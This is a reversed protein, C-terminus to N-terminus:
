VNKEFKDTLAIVKETRQIDEKSSKSFLEESLAVFREFIDQKFKAQEEKTVNIKGNLSHIIDLQERINAEFKESTTKYYNYKSGLTKIQQAVDEVATNNLELKAMMTNRVYNDTQVSFDKM